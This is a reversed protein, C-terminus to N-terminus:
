SAEGEVCFLKQFLKGETKMDDSLNLIGLINWLRNDFSIRYKAGNLTNSLGSQYRIVIDATSKSVLQGSEFIEKATKPTIVAWLTYATSWTIAQGGFSDATLSQSQIIIRNKASQIFSNKCCTAM